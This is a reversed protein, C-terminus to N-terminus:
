SPVASRPSLPYTRPGRQKSHPIVILEREWDIDELRLQRVQDVRLAYSALLMLIARDRIGEHGTRSRSGHSGSWHFNCWAM